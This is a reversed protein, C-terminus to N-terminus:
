GNGIPQANYLEVLFTEDPQRPVLSTANPRLRAGIADLIVGHARDVIDDISPTKAFMATGRALIEHRTPLHPLHLSALVDAARQQTAALKCQLSSLAPGELTVGIAVAIHDTNFSAALQAAARGIVRSGRLLVSLYEMLYVAEVKITKMFSEAKANDYPNGRRGMSGLFGHARCRDAQHANTSPRDGCCIAVPNALSHGGIVFSAAFLGSGSIM